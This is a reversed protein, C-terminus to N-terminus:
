KHCFMYTFNQTKEDSVMSALLVPSGQYRSSMVLAASVNV